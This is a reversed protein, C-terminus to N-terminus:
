QSVRKTPKYWCRPRSGPVKKEPQGGKKGGSFSSRFSEYRHCVGVNPDKQDVDNTHDKGCVAGMFYTDLRCQSAPHSDDTSRAKKQDPTEFKPPEEEMGFFAADGDKPPIGGRPPSNRLDSLTNALAFGAMSSRVCLAYDHGTGHFQECQVKVVDPVDMKSIIGFNDQDAWAKRACKLTAWYDSQGENSAWRMGKKPAGGIHHGIEHCVVLAFGDETMKPHRALGGFMKVVSKGGSKTAYANVTPTKWDKIIELEEGMEKMIPKYVVEVEEIVRFFSEKTIPSDTKIYAPIELGNEPAIGGGAEGCGFSIISLTLSILLLLKM